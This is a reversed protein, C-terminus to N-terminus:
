SFREWAAQRSIGLTDGIQQWSVERRRLIDISRQLRLAVEEHTKEQAKLLGLLNETPANDPWEVKKPPAAPDPDPTEAVIKTCLDVCADCIFVAPGAILKKVAHQSKGCFSCYLTNQDPKATM